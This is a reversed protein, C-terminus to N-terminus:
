VREADGDSLTANHVIVQHDEDKEQVSKGDLSTVTVRGTKKPQTDIVMYFLAGESGLAEEVSTTPFRFVTGHGAKGLLTKKDKKGKPTAKVVNLM